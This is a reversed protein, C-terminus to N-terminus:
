DDRSILKTPIVLLAILCVVVIAAMLGSVGFGIYGDNPYHVVKPALFYNYTGTWESSDSMTATFVVSDITVLYDNGSLETTNVEASVSSVSLTDSNEVGTTVELDEITGNAMFTAYTTDEVIWTVGAIIINSDTYVIPNKTLVYDGKTSIYATPTFEVDTYNSGKALRVGDDSLTLSVPTDVEAVAGTNTTVTYTQVRGVSNIRVFGDNDGYIITASSYLSFDPLEVEKGDSTIYLESDSDLGVVVTHTKGDYAAYPVGDNVYDKTEYGYSAVIPAVLSGVMIIGVTLAVLIGILRNDM